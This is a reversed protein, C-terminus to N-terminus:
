CQEDNYCCPLMCYKYVFAARKANYGPSKFCVKMNELEGSRKCEIEKEFAVWDRTQKEALIEDSRKSEALQEAKIIVNEVFEMYDNSIIEDIMKLKLAQKASMPYESDTITLAMEEGVRKPLSYTWYESGFLDMKKYSPNLVVSNHTWVFDSALAAMVGGAGANGLIASVTVKEKCM